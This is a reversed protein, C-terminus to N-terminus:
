FLVYHAGTQKVSVVILNM